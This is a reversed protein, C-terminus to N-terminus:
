SSPGVEDDDASDRLRLGAVFDLQPLAAVRHRGVRRITGEPDGTNELDPAAPEPREAELSWSGTTTAPDREDRYGSPYPPITAIPTTGSGPPVV